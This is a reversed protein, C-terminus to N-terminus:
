SGGPNLIRAKVAQFESESLVSRVRFDAINALQVDISNPSDKRSNHVDVDTPSDNRSSRVFYTIIASAGAIILAWVILKVPAYDQGCFYENTALGTGCIGQRGLPVVGAIVGEPQM